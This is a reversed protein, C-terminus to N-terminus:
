RLRRALELEDPPAHCGAVVVAAHKACLPREDIMAAAKALCGDQDCPVDFPHRYEEDAM